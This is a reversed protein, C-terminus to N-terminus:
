ARPRLDDSEEVPSFALLDGAGTYTDGSFVLDGIGTWLNLDGSDFAIKVLLIPRLSPATAETVMGATLSRTM